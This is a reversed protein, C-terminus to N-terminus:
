ASIRVNESQQPSIKRLRTLAILSAALAFAMGAYFAAHFGDVTAAAKTLSPNASLAAATRATAITSLVALGLSGGIQQATVVLGSALGSEHGPVGTTAAITISTFCFGMGVG